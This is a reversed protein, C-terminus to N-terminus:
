DGKRRVESSHYGFFDYFNSIFSTTLKYGVKAAIQKTSLDTELLLRRAENMRAEMHLQGIPKGHIEKFGDKLKDTNMGAERSVEGIRFKKDFGVKVKEGITTLIERERETLPVLPNAKKAAEILLLIMYERVKSEYILRSDDADFPMDLIANVTDLAMAGAPRPQNQLFFSKRDTNTFLPRLFEFRNLLPKLWEDAWAVEMYEHPQLKQFDATALGGSTHLLVFQGQKVVVAGAGEMEVKLNNRLALFSVLRAKTQFLRLRFPQLFDFLHFRMAYHTSSLEQQIILGANPDSATIIDGGRLVPGNYNDPLSASLEFQQNNPPIFDPHM